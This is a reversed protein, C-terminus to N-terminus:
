RLESSNLLVQYDGSVIDPKYLTVLEKLEQTSPTGFLPPLHLVFCLVTKMWRCRGSVQTFVQEAYPAANDMGYPVPGSDRNISSCYM